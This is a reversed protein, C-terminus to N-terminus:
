PANHSARLRGVKWAFLAMYLLGYPVFFAILMGIAVSSANDLQSTGTCCPFSKGNHAPQTSSSCPADTFLCVPAAYGEVFHATGFPLVSGDPGHFAFPFRLTDTPDYTCNGAPADM